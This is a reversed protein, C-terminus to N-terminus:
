VFLGCPIKVALFAYGTRKVPYLLLVVCSYKKVRRKFNVYWNV